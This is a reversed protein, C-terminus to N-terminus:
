EILAMETHMNDEDIEVAGLLFGKVVVTKAAFVGADLGIM